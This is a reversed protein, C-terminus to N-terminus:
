HIVVAQRVEKQYGTKTLIKLKRDVARRFGDLEEEDKFIKVKINEDNHFMQVTTALNYLIKPFFEDVNENQVVEFFQKLQTPANGLFYECLADM